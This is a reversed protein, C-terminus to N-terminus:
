NSSAQEYNKREVIETDYIKNRPNKEPKIGGDGFEQLAWYRRNAWKKVKRIYKARKKDTKKKTEIEWMKMRYEICMDRYLLDADDKYCVPILGERMAQCLGDHVLSPVKCYKDPDYIELSLAILLEKHPISSGDWAYSKKLLFTGDDLMTYYRTDFEFGTIGTQRVEAEELKFKYHRTYSYKM